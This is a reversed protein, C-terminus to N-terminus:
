SVISKLAPAPLGAEEAQTLARELRAPASRGMCQHDPDGEFCKVMKALLVDRDFTKGTLWEQIDIVDNAIDRVLQQHNEWLKGVNGGVKLGAVNTTIIYLNKLVLENLLQEENELLKVPIDLASLADHLTQAHPGYAPSPVIVRADMGKKKEFWVSIVTPNTVPGQKWDQPLLENQLLIIRDQWTAPIAQLVRALDKEGVAILVAKPEPMIEAVMEVSQNRNVPIISHGSKLLGRAFVGGMEGVGILVITNKNM